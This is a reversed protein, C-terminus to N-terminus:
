CVENLYDNQTECDIFKLRIIEALQDDGNCDKYMFDVPANNSDRLQLKFTCGEAGFSLIESDTLVIDGAISTLEIDCQKTLGKHVILRLDSNSEAIKVSMDCISLYVIPECTIM